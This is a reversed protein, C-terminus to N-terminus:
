KEGEATNQVNEGGNVTAAAPVAPAAAEEYAPRGLVFDKSNVFKGNEDVFIGKIEPHKAAFTLADQKELTFLAMALAMATMSDNGFVLIISFHDAGESYHQPMAMIKPPLIAAAKNSFSYVSSKYAYNSEPNHIDLSVRWPTHIDQGVNRTVAGVEIKANPLGERAIDGMMKDALYAPWILSIDLKMGGNKWTISKDADNLSIKKYGGDVTTVDFRGNTLGSLEKSRLLLNYMDGSLVLSEGKSLANIKSVEGGAGNIEADLQAAGSLMQEMITNIRAEESQDAIITITAPVGGSLVSSKSFQRTIPGTYVEEKKTKSAAHSVVSLSAAIVLTLVAVLSKRKM